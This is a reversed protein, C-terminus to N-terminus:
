FQYQFAGQFLEKGWTVSENLSQSGPLSGVAPRISVAVGDVNKRTVINIVASLAESGYVASAGDSLVEIREVASAPIANVNTARSGYSGGTKPLRKGNVLVLTRTAGMGRVDIRSASGGYPSLTSSQLIGGVTHAASKEIEERDIVKVPSAGELDLQRIRSGVVPIKEVPSGESSVGEPPTLEQGSSEQARASLSLALLPILFLSIKMKM